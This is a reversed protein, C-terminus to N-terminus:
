RRRIANIFQADATLVSAPTASRSQSQPAPSERPRLALLSMRDQILVRRDDDSAASRLQELFSPSLASSPLQSERILSQISEERRSRDLASQLEVSRQRLLDREERVRHLEATLSEIRESLVEPTADISERFTTTTAPNVVADVSIVDNIREVTKGDASRRALVVHSMGVGPTASEVLKLFIQGPETDLVRIDGRIRGDVFRPSVISGVLDRTSREHPRSRDQGHDLFVPKDRYLDVASQLAEETYSYGNRSDTGSLAVNQVLRGPGDVHLSQNWDHCRETLTILPM